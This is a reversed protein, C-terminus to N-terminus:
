LDILVRCLQCMSYYCTAIDLTEQNLEQNLHEAKTLAPALFDLGSIQFCSVLLSLSIFLHLILSKIVQWAFLEINVVSSDKMAFKPLFPVGKLVLKDLEDVGYENLLRIDNLLDM